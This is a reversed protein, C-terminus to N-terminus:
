FGGRLVIESFGKLNLFNCMGEKDNLIVIKGKFIKIFNGQKTHKHKSQTKFNNKM